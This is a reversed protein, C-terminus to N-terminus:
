SCTSRKFLTFECIRFEFLHESCQPARHLLRKVRFLEVAQQGQEEPEAFFATDRLSLQGLPDAHSLAVDAFNLPPDASKIYQFQPRPQEAQVDRESVKGALELSLNLCGDLSITLNM